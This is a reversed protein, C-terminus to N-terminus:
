NLLIRRFARLCQDKHEPGVYGFPVAALAVTQFPSAVLGLCRGLDAAFAAIWAEWVTDVSLDWALGDLTRAGGLAREEAVWTLGEIAAAVWESAGPATWWPPPRRRAGPGTHTRIEAARRLLTRAPLAWAVTLLDEEPRSLTWRM